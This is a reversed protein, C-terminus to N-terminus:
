IDMTKYQAGRPLKQLCSLKNLTVATILFDAIHRVPETPASVALSEQLRLHRLDGANCLSYVIIDFTADRLVQRRRHRLLQRAEIPNGHRIEHIFEITEEIISLSVADPGIPLRQPQSPLRKGSCCSDGNPAQPFPLRSSFLDASFGPLLIEFLRGPKWFQGISALM